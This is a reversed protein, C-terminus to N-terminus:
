RLTSHTNVESNWPVRKGKVCRRPVIRIDNGTLPANLSVWEGRYNKRFCLSAYEDRVM